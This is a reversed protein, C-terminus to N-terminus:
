FLILMSETKMWVCCYLNKNKDKGEDKKYKSEKNLGSRNCMLESIELLEKVHANSYTNM